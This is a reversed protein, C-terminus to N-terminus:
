STFIIYGITKETLAQAVSQLNESSITGGITSYSHRSHPLLTALFTTLNNKAWGARGEWDRQLM